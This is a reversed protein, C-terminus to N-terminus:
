ETGCDSGNVQGERGSGQERRTVTKRCWKQEVFKQRVAKLALPGFETARTAAYLEFVPRVAAAPRPLNLQERGLDHVAQEVTVEGVREM